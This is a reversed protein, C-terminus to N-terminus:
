TILAAAEDLREIEHFIIQRQAGVITALDAFCLFGAYRRVPRL